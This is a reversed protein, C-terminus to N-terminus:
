FGYIWRKLRKHIKGYTKNQERKPLDPCFAIAIISITSVLALAFTELSFLSYDGMLGVGGSGLILVFYFVIWINSNFSYKDDLLQKLWEISDKGEYEWKDYYGAKVDGIKLQIAM